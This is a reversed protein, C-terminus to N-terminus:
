FLDLSYAYMLTMLAQYHPFPNTFPPVPPSKPPHPLHYADQNPVPLYYSQWFVYLIDYRFFLNETQYIKNLFRLIFDLPM